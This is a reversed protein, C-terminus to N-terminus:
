ILEKHNIGIKCTRCHGTKVQTDNNHMNRLYNYADSSFIDQLTQSHINGTIQDAHEPIDSRVACCTMVNGNYDIYLNNIPQSCRKTRQYEKNLDITGGRSSGDVEFNRARIHMLFTDALKINYEIKYNDINTILEANDKVGLSEIKNNIWQMSKAHNYKEDNELYQQVWLQSLGSKILEDIYQKDRLYDGNTNIRLIAKPLKERAEKIRKLIIEKKALPENYRSYSIEGNYNIDYLQNIIDTYVEDSMVHKGHEVRRDIFSNPCFWCTRNCYSFTEIEILKLNDKLSHM